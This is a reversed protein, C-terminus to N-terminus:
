RGLAVAAIVHDGARLGALFARTADSVPDGFQAWSPSRTNINLAEQVLGAASQIEIVAAGQGLAAMLDGIDTGHPRDHLRFANVTGHPEERLEIGTVTVATALALADDGGIRRGIPVGGAADRWLWRSTERAPTTGVELLMRLLTERGRSRWADIALRSPPPADLIPGVARSTAAGGAFTATVAVRAGVDAAVLVYRASAAGPIPAGDRRWQWAYPGPASLTGATATLERGLLTEGAIVPVGVGAESPAAGGGAAPDVTLDQRVEIPTRAGSGDVWEAFVHVELLGARHALRVEQLAVDDLGNPPHAIAGAVAAYVRAEARSDVNRDVIAGIESGYDRAFPYSGREIALADRLRQRASDAGALLTTGDRGM